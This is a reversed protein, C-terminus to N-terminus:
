GLLMRFTNKILSIFPTPKGLEIFRFLYLALLNFNWLIFLLTTLYIWKMSIKKSLFEILAAFGLIFIITCNIFRRSGFTQGSNWDLVVSNLYIQLLFTIIFYLTLKKDKKYLFYLGITAPLILPTFYFLSNNNSFLVGFIHPNLWTLFGSGQPMTLFSGHTIKWFLMQPFFSIIIALSLVIYNLITKQIDKNKLEKILDWVIISLFIANQWRVMVMFGALLGSILYSKLDTKPSFWSYIFFSVFAM